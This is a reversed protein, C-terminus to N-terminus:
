KGFGTDHKEMVELFGVKLNDGRKVSCISSHNDLRSNKLYIFSTTLNQLKDLKSM